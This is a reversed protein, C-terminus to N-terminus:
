TGQKIKNLDEPTDIDIEGGPFHVWEMEEASTHDLIQRKAGETDPISLLEEFLQRDYLVPTGYSGAYASAIIKKGTRRYRGILRDFHGASIYPQDCVAIIVASPLEKHDMLDRLGAKISTGIGQQWDPNHVLRIGKRDEVSTKLEKKPGTVVIIEKALSDAASAISRELLTMGRFELSLKDKMLRSSNGAALLLITINLNTSL